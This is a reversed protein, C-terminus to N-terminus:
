AVQIQAMKGTIASSRDLHVLQYVNAMIQGVCQDDLKGGLLGVVQPLEFRGGPKFEERMFLTNLASPLDILLDFRLEM